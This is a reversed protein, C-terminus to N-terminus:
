RGHQCCSLVVTLISNVPQTTSIHNQMRFRIRELSVLKIEHVRDYVQIDVFVSRAKAEHGLVDQSCIIATIRSTQQLLRGGCM